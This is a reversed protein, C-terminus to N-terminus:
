APPPLSWDELKLGEVRAFERANDTVLTLDRSRAQGAILVEYSGIPTGLAKLEARIAGAEFADAATFDMIPFRLREVRALNRETQVSDHGGFYLEHLVIASLLVDDREVLQM